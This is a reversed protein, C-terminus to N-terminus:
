LLDYKTKNKLVVEDYTDYKFLRISRSDGNILLIAFHKDHDYEKTFSKGNQLKSIHSNFSFSGKECFYYKCNFMQKSDNFMHFINVGGRSQKSKKEAMMKHDCLVADWLREMNNKCGEM